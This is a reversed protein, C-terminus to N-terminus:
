LRHVQIATAAKSPVEFIYFILCGIIWSISKRVYISQLLCEPPVMTLAESGFNYCKLFKNLVLVAEDEKTSNFAALIDVIDVLIVQGQLFVRDLPLLWIELKRDIYKSIRALLHRVINWLENNSTVQNASLYKSLSVRPLNEEFFRNMLVLFNPSEVKEVFFQDSESAKLYEGLFVQVNKFVGRQSISLFCETKWFIEAYMSRNQYFVRYVYSLLRKEVFAILIMTDEFDEKFEANLSNM